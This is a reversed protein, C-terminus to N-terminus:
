YKVDYNRLVSIVPFTWKQDLGVRQIRAVLSRLFIKANEQKQVRLYGPLTDDIGTMEEVLIEEWDLFEIKQQKILACAAKAMREDEGHIYVYDQVAMRKLIAHFIQKSQDDNLEKCAALEAFVDALHATSHAWGFEMVYGRLDHEEEAYRILNEVLEIFRDKRMWARHSKVHDEVLIAIVLLAFSRKFIGDGQAEDIRVFIGDGQSRALLERCTDKSLKEGETLRALLSLALDDRLESDLEGLLDYLALAYADAKVDRPLRWDNARIAQLEEKWIEMTKM